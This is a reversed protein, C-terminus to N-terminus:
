GKKLRETVRRGICDPVGPLVRLSLSKVGRHRRTLIERPFSVFYCNVNEKKHRRGKSWNVSLTM